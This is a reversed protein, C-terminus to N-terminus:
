PGEALLLELGPRTQALQGYLHPPLFVDRVAHEDGTRRGYTGLGEESRQHLSFGDSLLAEVLVVYRQNFSAAWLGLEGAVWSNAQLLSFGTASGVCKVLLLRGRDGLAELAAQCKPSLLLSSHSVLSELFMKDDCVEDLITLATSAVTLSHDRLQRVLLEVGYVAISSAGMRALVRLWRTAYM